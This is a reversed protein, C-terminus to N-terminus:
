VVVVLFPLLPPSPALLEHFSKQDNFIHTIWYFTSSNCFKSPPHSMIQCPSENCQSASSTMWVFSSSPEGLTIVMSTILLPCITIYCIKLVYGFSTKVLQIPIILFLSSDLIIEVNPRSIDFLPNPIFPFPSSQALVYKTSFLVFEMLRKSTWTSM